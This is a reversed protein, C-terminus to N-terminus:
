EKESTYESFWMTLYCKLCLINFTKKYYVTEIFSVSAFIIQV